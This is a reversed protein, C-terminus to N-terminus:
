QSSRRHDRRTHNWCMMCLSCAVSIGIVSLLIGIVMLLRLTGTNTRTPDIPSETAADAAPRQTPPSTKSPGDQKGEGGSTPNGPKPNTQQGDNGLDEWEGEGPKPGGSPNPPWPRPILPPRPQPKPPVPDPRPPRPPPRPRNFPKTTPKPKTVPFFLLFYSFLPDYNNCSYM